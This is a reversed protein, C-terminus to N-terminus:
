VWEYKFGLAQQHLRLNTVEREVVHEPSGNIKVVNLKPIVAWCGSWSVAPCNVTRRNDQRCEM